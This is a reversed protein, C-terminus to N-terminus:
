PRARGAAASEILLTMAEALMTVTKAERLRYPGPDILVMSNFTGLTFQVGFRVADRVARDGPKGVIRLVVPEVARTYRQGTERLPSWSEPHLQAHRLSARAFGEYQRYWRATADVSKHLFVRLDMGEIPATSFSSAMNRRVEEVVLRQLFEIFLEKSDFRKYFAGATVGAERCVDAISLTAFDRDALLKLASALLKAVVERSRQQRAPLVGPLTTSEILAQDM